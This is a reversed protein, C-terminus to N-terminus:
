PQWVGGRCTRWDTETSYTKKLKPTCSAIQIPERKKGSPMGLVVRKSIDNETKTNRRNRM